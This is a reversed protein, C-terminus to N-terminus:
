RGYGIFNYVQEFIKKKPEDVASLFGMFSLINQRQKMRQQVSRKKLKAFSKTLNRVDVHLLSGSYVLM